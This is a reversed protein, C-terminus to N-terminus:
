SANAHAAPSDLVAASLSGIMILGAAALVRARRTRLRTRHFRQAM